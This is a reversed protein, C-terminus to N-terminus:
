YIRAKRQFDALEKYMSNPDDKADQQKPPNPTRARPQVLGRTRGSTPADSGRRGAGLKSRMDEIYDTIDQAVAETNARMAATPDKGQARLRGAIVTGAYTILEEDAEPVATKIMAEARAYVDKDSIMSQASQRAREEIQQGMKVVAAHARAAYGKHFAAPDMAPDPLGELSFELEPAVSDQQLPQGRPTTVERILRENASRNDDLIRRLMEETLSGREEAEKPELETEPTEYLTQPLFDDAM